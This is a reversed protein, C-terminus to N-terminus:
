VINAHKDRSIIRTKMRILHENMDEAIVINLLSILFLSKNKLM